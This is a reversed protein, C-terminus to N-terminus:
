MLAAIAVLASLCTIMVTSLTSADDRVPDGGGFDGPNSPSPSPSTNPTVCQFCDHTM